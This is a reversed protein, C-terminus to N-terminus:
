FQKHFQLALLGGLIQTAIYIVADMNTIQKNALMMVTVAPNFHGGSVKGGMYIVAALALGIPIAEGTKIIVSLFVFTGILEAIIKGIM